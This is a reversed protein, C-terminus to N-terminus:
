WDPELFAKRFGELVNQLVPSLLQSVAERCQRDGIENTHTSEDIPLNTLAVHPNIRINGETRRPEYEIKQAFYRFQFIHYLCLAINAGLSVRKGHAMTKQANTKSQVM